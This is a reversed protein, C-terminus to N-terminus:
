RRSVSALIRRSYITEPSVLTVSACLLHLSLPLATPQAPCAPESTPQIPTMPSSPELPAPKTTPTRTHTHPHMLTHTCPPPPFIHTHMPIPHIHIPTHTPTHPHTHPHTHTPTHTCTLTPLFTLGYVTLFSLSWDYWQLELANTRTNTTAIAHAYGSNQSPPEPMLPAWRWPCFKPFQIAWNIIVQFSMCTCSYM